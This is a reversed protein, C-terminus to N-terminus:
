SDIDAYEDDVKRSMDCEYRQIKRQLTRLGIKLKKAAHTKNFNNLKLVMLIYKREVEELPTLKMALDLLSPNKM